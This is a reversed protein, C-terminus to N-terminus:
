LQQWAAAAALKWDLTWPRGFGGGLQLLARQTAAAGIAIEDCRSTTPEVGFRRAASECIERFLWGERSHARMHPSTIREAPTDSNVVLAIARLQMSCDLTELLKELARRGIQRAREAAAEAVEPRGDLELHYPHVTHPQMPDALAIERRLGARPTRRSGLVIVALARGTKVRLGLV